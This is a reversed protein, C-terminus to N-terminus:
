PAGGGREPVRRLRMMVLQHRQVEKRRVDEVHEQLAVDRAEAARSALVDLEALRSYHKILEADRHREAQGRLDVVGPLPKDTKLMSGPRTKTLNRAPPQAPAVPSTSPDAAAAGAVGLGLLVVALRSVPVRGM